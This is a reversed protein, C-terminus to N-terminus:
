AEATTSRDPLLEFIADQTTGPSAYARKSHSLGARVLSVAFRFAWEGPNIVPVDVAESVAPIAQYMTTSGMVLVDAGDEEVARRGEEALATITEEDGTLLQDVDPVKDLSRISALHSELGYRRVNRRYVFEWRDWVSLVSFSRGLTAAVHYGVQGPGVVPITLRSRLADIGSDSVTDMMVADFGEDEARVGEATIFLDMLLSEYHSDALLGSNRVPVFVAEEVEALLERDLQDRRLEVGASDMPFPIIVKIRVSAARSGM